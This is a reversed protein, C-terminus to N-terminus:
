YEKKYVGTNLKSIYQKPYKYVHEPTINTHLNKRVINRNPKPILVIQPEGSQHPDTSQSSAQLGFPQQNLEWDPCMGPTHALDGTPSVRSAAM